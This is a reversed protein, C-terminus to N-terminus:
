GFGSFKRHSSYRCSVLEVAAGLEAKVSTLIKSSSLLLYLFLTLQCSGCGILLRSKIILVNHRKGILSSWMTELHVVPQLGHVPPVRHQDTDGRYSIYLVVPHLYLRGAQKRHIHRGTNCHSTMVM